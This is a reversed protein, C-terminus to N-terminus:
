FGAKLEFHMRKEFEGECDKREVVDDAKVVVEIVFVKTLERKDLHGFLKTHIIEKYILCNTWNAKESLGKAEM